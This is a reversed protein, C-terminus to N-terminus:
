DEEEQPLSERPILQPPTGRVVCAEDVIVQGVDPRDPVEYMTDRLVEECISRLGRAGTHRELSKRAIARLADETFEVKVGEFSFLYEYQRTLANKPETLIRVLDGETLDQTHSIVPIRGVFEPILGFRYLDQPQVCDLLEDPSMAVSAEGAADASAVSGAAGAMGTGLREEIIDTLGVFAGGCIFLINSTDMHISQQLLNTKGGFPPVTAMKGELITLLAQQVGEGSADRQGRSGPKKALKDIEDVYIIGLQAREVDGDAASILKHLVSEVDEGVFGAATLVTADAIAIPVNLLRALTEAMLTKGSGTPGLMLINSKSVEVPPMEGADMRLSAIARKYHNYVAVALTKRAAEQGIVYDGMAEFIRSPTPLSIEGTLRAKVSSQEDRRGRSRSRQSGSSGMLPWGYAGSRRGFADENDRTNAVHGSGVSRVKGKRQREIESAQIANNVHYAQANALVEGLVSAERGEIPRLARAILVGIVVIAAIVVLTMTLDFVQTAEPPGYLKTFGGALVLGMLLTVLVIIIANAHLWARFRTM